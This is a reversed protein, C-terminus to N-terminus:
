FDLLWLSEKQDTLGGTRKILKLSQKDVKRKMDKASLSKIFDSTRRYSIARGVKVLM